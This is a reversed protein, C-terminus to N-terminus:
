IEGCSLTHPQLHVAGKVSVILPFTAVAKFSNVRSLFLYVCPHALIAETINTSVGVGVFFGVIVMEGVTRGDSGGVMM